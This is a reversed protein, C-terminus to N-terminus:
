RSEKEDNQPAEPDRYPGRGRERDRDNREQDRNGRDRERYWDDRRWGEFGTRCRNRLQERMREQEEPTMNAMREKLRAKWERGRGFKDHHNHHWGFLLKGLLLLGLAQWFTIVPGHFLEPILCNWLLMTAFGVATIFLAGLVVFKLVQLGGRRRGFNNRM